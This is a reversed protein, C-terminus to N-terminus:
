ASSPMRSKQRDRPSPSTYLLCTNRLKVGFVGGLAHGSRVDLSEQGFIRGYDIAGYFSAARIFESLDETVRYDLENRWVVGSSGSALSTRSGRVTSVGGVSFAQTGYLRDESYQASLTTSWTLQNTTGLGQVYDVDFGALLYQPEPAGDPLSDGNQGGFARM